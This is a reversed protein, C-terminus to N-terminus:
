IAGLRAPAFPSPDVVPAAGTALDAVLRGAGPGIGFGHGSLGTALFLGPLARVPGIVPLADPTVDHGTFVRGRGTLMIARAGQAVATRFAETLDAIMAATLANAKDARDLTITTFGDQPGHTQIM